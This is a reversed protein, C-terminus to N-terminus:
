NLKKSNSNTVWASGERVACTVHTYVIHPSGCGTPTSNCWGESANIVSTRTATLFHRVSDALWTYRGLSRRKNAFNTGVKATLSCKIKEKGRQDTRWSPEKRFTTGSSTVTWIRRYGPQIVHPYAKISTRHNSTYWIPRLPVPSCSHIYTIIDSHVHNM